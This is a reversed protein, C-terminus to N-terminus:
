QQNGVWSPVGSAQTTAVGQPTFQQPQQQPAFQQPQQQPAFQPQQQVPAQQQPTQQQPAAPQQWQANPAQPAPTFQQPQQQVPAQQFGAPAAQQVGAWEPTGGPASAGAGAPNSGPPKGNIDLYGNVNNSYQGPRDARPEKTVIVTFPRNHLQQTDQMNLVGTVHCIASLTGYAIEVAQLSANKTNLRDIVTRGNYEGGQVVMTIELYSSGDRKSTPKEVSGTIIVPYNGSPLAEFGTNPAVTTANFALTVM